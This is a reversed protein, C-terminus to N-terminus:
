VETGLPAHSQGIVASTLWSGIAGALAAALRRGLTRLFKVIQRLQRFHTQSRRGASEDVVAINNILSGHRGYDGLIGRLRASRQRRSGDSRQRRVLVLDQALARPEEELPDLGLPFNQFTTVFLVGSQADTKRM